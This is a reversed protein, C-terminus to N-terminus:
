MEEKSVVAEKAEEDAARSVREDKRAWKRLQRIDAFIGMNWIASSSPSSNLSDPISVAVNSEM